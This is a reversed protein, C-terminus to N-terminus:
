EQVEKKIIPKVIVKVGQVKVVEVETDIPMETGDESEASWVESSIRVQGKGEINDIKKVVIGKKGVIAFVNSPNDKPKLLGKTLPRTFIILVSALLIFVTGQVYINLGAFSLIAAVVASIGFWFLIFGTTVIEGVFLLGALILWKMWM